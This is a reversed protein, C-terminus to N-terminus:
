WIMELDALEGDNFEVSVDFFMSKQKSTENYPENSKLTVKYIPRNLVVSIFSKLALNSEETEQTFISKFTFDNLPSLLATDNPRKTYLEAPYQPGFNEEEFVEEM